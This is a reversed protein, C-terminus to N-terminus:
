RTAWLKRCIFGALGEPLTSGIQSSRYRHGIQV